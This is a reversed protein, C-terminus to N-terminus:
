PKPPIMAGKIPMLAISRTTAAKCRAQNEPTKRHELVNTRCDHQQDQEARQGAEDIRQRNRSDRLDRHWAVGIAAEDFLVAHDDARSQDPLVELAVAIEMWAGRRRGVGIGVIRRLRN